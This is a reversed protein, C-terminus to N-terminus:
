AHGMRNLTRNLEAAARKLLDVVDPQPGRLQDQATDVLKRVDDLPLIMGPTAAARTILDSAREVRDAALGLNRDAADGAALLLEAHAAWLQGRAEAVEARQELADKEATFAAKQEAIQQKLGGVPRHGLFWGVGLLILVAALVSLARTV